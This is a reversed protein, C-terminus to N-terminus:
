PALDQVVLLLMGALRSAIGASLILAYVALGAQGLRRCTEDWQNAMPLASLVLFPTCLFLACFLLFAQDPRLWDWSGLDPLVDRLMVRLYAKEMLLLVVRTGVDMAVVAAVGAAARKAVLLPNIRPTEGARSSVYMEIYAAIYLVLAVPGTLLGALVAGLRVVGVAVGLREGLGACVGLWVRDDVSPVVGRALPRDELLERAQHAPSGLADLVAVVEPDPLPSIDLERLSRLIRAKLRAIARARAADPVDGLEQAVARLYRAVLWEQKQSLKM